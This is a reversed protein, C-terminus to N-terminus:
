EEIAYDGRALFQVTGTDDRRLMVGSPWVAIITARISGRADDFRIRGGPIPELEDGASAAPKQPKIRHAM